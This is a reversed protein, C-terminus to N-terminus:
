CSVCTLWDGHLDTLCRLSTLLQGVTNDGEWIPNVAADAYLKGFGAYASYGHGGCCTRCAEITEIASWTAVAKLGASLAHLDNIGTAKGQKLEAQMRENQQSVDDAVWRFAYTEAVHPLLRYAHTSYDLIKQEVGATSSPFQRRVASYRM